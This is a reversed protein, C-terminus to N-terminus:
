NLEPTVPYPFKGLNKVQDWDVVKFAELTGNPAQKAYQVQLSGYAFTISEEPGEDGPGSWEVKTAFVLGFNFCLYPKGTSSSGGSGAKRCALRVVQYHAGACCNKFFAASCQDVTKKISFENFQVKGGGAGGTASGVTAKNEIGFSFDKIEFWANAGVPKKDFYADQTEGPIPMMSAGEAPVFLVFADVAM